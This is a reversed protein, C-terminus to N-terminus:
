ANGEVATEKGCYDESLVPETGGQVHVEPLTNTHPHRRHTVAPRPPVGHSGEVAGHRCTEPVDGRTEGMQGFHGASQPTQRLFFQATGTEAITARKGPPDYYARHAFWQSGCGERVFEAQIIISPITFHLLNDPYPPNTYVTNSSICLLPVLPLPFSSRVLSPETTTSSQQSSLSGELVLSRQGMLRSSSDELLNKKDHDFPYRGGAVSDHVNNAMSSAAVAEFGEGALFKVKPTDGARKGWTGKKPGRANRKLYIKLPDIDDVYKTLVYSSPPRTYSAPDSAPAHVFGTIPPYTPTQLSTFPYTSITHAM